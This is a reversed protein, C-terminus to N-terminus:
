ALVWDDSLDSRIFLGEGTPIEEKPQEKQPMPPPTPPTSALFLGDNTEELDILVENESRIFVAQPTDETFLIEDLMWYDNDEPQTTFPIYEGYLLM